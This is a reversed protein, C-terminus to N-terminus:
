ASRAACRPVGPHRAQRDIDLLAALEAVPPLQGARAKAQLELQHGILQEDIETRLAWGIGYYLGVSGVGLLFLALLLYYRTTANLLNM